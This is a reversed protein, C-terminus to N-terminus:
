PHRESWFDPKPNMEEAIEAQLLRRARERKIAATVPRRARDDHRAEELLAVRRHEYYAVVEEVVDDTM